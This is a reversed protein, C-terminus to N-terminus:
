CFRPKASFRAEFICGFWCIESIKLYCARRYSVKAHKGNRKNTKEEQQKEGIRKIKEQEGETQKLGTAEARHGTIPRMGRHSGAVSSDESLRYAGDHTYLAPTSRM